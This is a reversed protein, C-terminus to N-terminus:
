LESKRGLYVRPRTDVLARQGSFEKARTVELSKQALLLLPVKASVQLSLIRPSVSREQSELVLCLRTGTDSSNCYPVQPLLSALEKKAIEKSQELSLVDFDSRRSLAESSITVAEELLFRMRLLNSVDFAGVLLTLLAVLAFASELTSFGFSPHKNIALPSRM